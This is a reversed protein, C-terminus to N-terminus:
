NDKCDLATKFCVRSCTLIGSYVSGKLAYISRLFLPAVFTHYIICLYISVYIGNNRALFNNDHGINPKSVSAGVLLQFQLLKYVCSLTYGTDQFRLDIM